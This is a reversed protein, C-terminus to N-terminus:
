ISHIKRKPELFNSIDLSIALEMIRTFWLRTIWLPVVILVKRCEEQIKQLVTWIISFPPFAYIFKSNWNITLVDILSSEPGPLLSAYIWIQKILRSACMDIESGGFQDILYDFIWEADM